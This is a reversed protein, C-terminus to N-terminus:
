GTLIIYFHKNYLVGFSALGAATGGVWAITLGRVGRGRVNDEAQSVCKTSTELPKTASFPKMFFLERYQM